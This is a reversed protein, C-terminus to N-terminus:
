CRKEVDLVLVEVMVAFTDLFVEELIVVTLYNQKMQIVLCKMLLLIKFDM